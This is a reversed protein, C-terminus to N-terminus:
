PVALAVVIDPHGRLSLPNDHWDLDSGSVGRIANQLFRAKGLSKLALSEAVAAATATLGSVPSLANLMSFVPRRGRLCLCGIPRPRQLNSPGPTRNGGLGSAAVL